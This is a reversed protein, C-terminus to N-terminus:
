QKDKTLIPNLLVDNRFCLLENIFEKIKKVTREELKGIREFLDPDDVINYDKPLGAKKLTVRRAAYFAWDLICPMLQSAPILAYVAIALVRNFAYFKLKNLEQSRLIEAQHERMAHACSRLLQAEKNDMNIKCYDLIYLPNVAIDDCFAKMCKQQLDYMELREAAEMMDKADYRLFECKGFYIYNLITIMTNQHMNSDDIVSGITIGRHVITAFCMGIAKAEAQRSRDDKGLLIKNFKPSSAALMWSHCLFKKRGTQKDINRVLKRRPYITVNRDTRKRKNKRKAEKKMRNQEQETRQVTITAM